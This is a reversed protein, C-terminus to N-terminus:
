QVTITTDMGREKHSDIPCWVEYKGAVLDVDLTTSQGASLNETKKDIGQGTIEFAHTFKGTNAVSFRVHGAKLTSSSLTITFETLTAQVDQTAGSGTVAPQAPSYASNPAPTQAAAPAPPTAGKVASPAQTPTTSGYGSGYGACATALLGVAALAALGLAGRRFSLRIIKHYRAM